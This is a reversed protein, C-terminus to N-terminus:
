FLLKVEPRKFFMTHDSNGQQYDYSKMAMCFRGFWARPSQKLGYLAKKLKCVRPKSNHDTYGPPLDMYIEEELDSHPFVNKVDFQHLPWDFNAVLSLIVRVINLKAVPSFTEQFDIGYIQTYGKAVLRFKYREIEDKENYKVLYVWKCGITNKGKPLDILEWTCNKRLANMETEMAQVWREDKLAEGLNNPIQVSSLQNAFAKLPKVLNLTSTYNAIPYRVETGDEPVYRKPHDVELQIVSYNLCLNLTVYRLLIM